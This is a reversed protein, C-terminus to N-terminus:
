PKSVNMCVSLSSSIRRPTATPASVNRATGPLSRNPARRCEVAREAVLHANGMSLQHEFRESEIRGDVEAVTSVSPLVPAAASGTVIANPMSCPRSRRPSWTAMSPIPEPILQQHQPRIASAGLRALVFEVLSM